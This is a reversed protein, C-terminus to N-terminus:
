VTKLPGNEFRAYLQYVCQLKAIPTEIFIFDINVSDDVKLSNNQVAEKCQLTHLKRTNYPIFNTYYVEEVTKLPDNEFKIHCTCAAKLNLHLQNHCFYSRKFKTM